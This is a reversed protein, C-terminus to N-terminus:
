SGVGLLCKCYVCIWGSESDTMIDRVGVGNGGADLIDDHVSGGNNRVTM